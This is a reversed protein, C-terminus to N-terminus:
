EEGEWPWPGNIWSWGDRETNVGEFSLPGFREEYEAKAQQHETRFGEYAMLAAQCEPQNDLFLATEIMQFNLQQIRRLLAVKDCNNMNM